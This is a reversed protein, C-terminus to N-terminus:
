VPQSGPPVLDNILYLAGQNALYACLSATFMLWAPPLLFTSVGIMLMLVVSLSLSFAPRRLFLVASNRLALRVHQREQEILLPVTYLQVLVWLALGGAFLGQVWVGWAAEIKAYYWVNTGVALGIVLNLLGWRWSSWFYTRFGTFFSRWDTPEHHALRNTAYYLGAAAPPATVILVTFAFWLLNWIILATFSYYADILWEYILRSVPPM